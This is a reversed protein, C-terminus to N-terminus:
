ATRIASSSSTNAQHTVSIPSPNAMPRGPPDREAIGPTKTLNRTDGKDAPVTFIDGHAEAVLACAPPRSISTRFRTPASTPWIRQLALFIARSPSPYQTNSTRPLIMFTCRDSSSTSWPGPAPLQCDKLDYGTNDVVQSVKKTDMDYSFLSVPGNRDSLFYVTSGVWVPSSDNSNDRPVKVLDLTKLNVLWIPTTQGGRYRKWAAEWQLTPVYAISQGDPSISGQVASPLPLASPSGHGDAATEFLEFFDSWSACMSDFLVNKGDPTWGVAYNGAGFHGSNDWTLRRPVGGDSSIVYVNTLGHELRSYAIESGDPSYYPGEVVDNRSTLREAVGGARPVTWIDDAYLFAIKTQSLSPNRLLLPDAASAQSSILALAFVIAASALTSISRLLHKAFLCESKM